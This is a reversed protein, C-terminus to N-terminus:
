YRHSLPETPPSDSRPPHGRRRPQGNWTENRVTANAGSGSRVGGWLQTISQSGPWTWGVAWGNIAGAGARM